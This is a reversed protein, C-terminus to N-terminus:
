SLLYRSQKKTHIIINYTFLIMIFSNVYLEMVLPFMIICLIFYTFKTTLSQCFNKEEVRLVFDQENNKHGFRLISPVVNFLSSSVQLFGM